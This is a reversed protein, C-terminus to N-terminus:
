CLYKLFSTKKRIKKKRGCSKRNRSIDSVPVLFRFLTLVTSKNLVQLKNHFMGFVTNQVGFVANETASKQAETRFSIHKVRWFVLKRPTFCPRKSPSLGHKALRFRYRECHPVSRHNNSDAIVIQVEATQCYPLFRPTKRGFHCYPVFFGSIISEPM